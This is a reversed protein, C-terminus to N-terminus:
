QYIHRHIMNSEIFYKFFLYIYEFQSGGLPGLRYNVTIVAINGYSALVRGDYANGTGMDYSEGHIFLIM